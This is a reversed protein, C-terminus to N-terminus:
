FDAGGKVGITINTKLSKNSAKGKIGFTPRISTLLRLWFPRRDEEKPKKFIYQSYDKFM